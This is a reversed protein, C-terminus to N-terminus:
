FHAARRRAQAVSQAQARRVKVRRRRRRAAATRRRGTRRQHHRRRVQRRRRRLRWWRRREVRLKAKRVDIRGVPGVADLRQRGHRVRRRRRRRGLAAGGDEAGRGTFRPRWGSHFSLVLGDSVIHQPPCTALRRQGAALLRVVRVLGHRGAAQRRRGAGIRGAGVRLASVADIRLVALHGVRLRGAAVAVPRALVAYAKWRTRHLIDRNISRNSQSQLQRQAFPVDREVFQFQAVQHALTPESADVAALPVAVHGDPQEVHLVLDAVLLHELREAVLHGREALRAM